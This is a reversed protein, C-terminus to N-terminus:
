PLKAALALAADRMRTAEQLDPTSSKVYQELARRATREADLEAAKKMDRDVRHSFRVGDWMVRLTKNLRRLETRQRGLKIKLSSIAALQKEMAEIMAM